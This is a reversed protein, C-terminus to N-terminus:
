RLLIITGPQFHVAGGEPGVASFPESPLFIANTRADWLAALGNNLRVPYLVHLLKGDQRIKLWYFRVKATYEARGAVNIAFLYLPLGTDIDQPDTADLVTVGDMQIRQEGAALSSIVHHKQEPDIPIFREHNDSVTLINSPNDKDFYGFIGYGFSFATVARHFLYFRSDTSSSQRAGLFEEDAYYTAPLWAMEFEASTGARGIVGTDIYQSGDTEVYELFNVPRMTEEYVIKGVNGKAPIGPVACFLSKSVTDYLMAEGDKVCPKFDRVLVGDQWITLDYCRSRTPFRTTGSNNCAFLFLNCGADVSATSDTELITEGDLIITQSGAAYSIDFRYQRDATMGIRADDRTPYIRQTGYGSWFDRNNEHFMYFRRDGGVAGLFTRECKWDPELYTNAEDHSSRLMVWAMGGAARTDARARVGTDLYTNDDPTQIYEVFYDPEAVAPEVTLPMGSGYFITQSVADYLAYSRNKVCPRFDRVLVDDQWMKLGYLRVSSRNNPSNGINNAFLYFNIGTDFNNVDHGLYVTEGNVTLTQRGALLESTVHYRIGQTYLHDYNGIFSGYGLSMGSKHSHILFVRDSSSSTSRANLLAYDGGLALWEFEAECRTGSRARVGTDLHTVGQADVAEVFADPVSETEDYILDTGTFSYFITQSVADYLGARGDKVCPRFDRVLGRIGEDNDRYIKLGYCRARCKNACTGNLNNAFLYLNKGSDVLSAIDESWITYGDIVMSCHVSTGDPNLSYDTAVTYIRNTEWRSNAKEKSMYKFTGYGAAVRPTSHCFFVRTNNASTGDSGRADLFGVDGSDSTWMLTMEARMGYRGVEGTDVAQEGTAEVYRVFADPEEAVSTLAIAAVLMVWRKVSM